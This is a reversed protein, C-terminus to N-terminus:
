ASFNSVQSALMLFAFCSFFRSLLEDTTMSTSDSLKSKAGTDGGGSASFFLAVFPLSTAPLLSFTVRSDVEDLVSWRAAFRLNLVVGELVVSLPSSAASNGASVGGSSGASNVREMVVVDEAEVHPGVGGTGVCVGVCGAGAAANLYTSTTRFRASRSRSGAASHSCHLCTRLRESLTLQM